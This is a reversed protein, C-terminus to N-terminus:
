GALPLGKGGLPSLEVRDGLEAILPRAQSILERTRPDELSARHADASAWVETVWIADPDDSSRSVVYLECARNSDLAEAAQLLLHALSAGQGPQARFCGVLGFREM